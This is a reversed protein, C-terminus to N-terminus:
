LNMYVYVSNSLQTQTQKLKKYIKKFLIKIFLFLRREDDDDDDDDRRKWVVYLFVCVVCWM